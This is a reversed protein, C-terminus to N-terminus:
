KRTLIWCIGDATRHISDQYHNGKNLVFTTQIGADRYRCYILDTNKQVACLYKNRTRCERDGLSFYVCDPSVKMEHSSIYELLSPFWLSGSMTAFRSFADTNYMAYIAFLGALSYGTIARWAPAGTQQEVFPIIDRLMEQLYEDAGGTCPTDGPYIAPIAWPAMDKNWDVDSIAVLTHDPAGMNELAERVQAGMGEFTNIYIAPSGENRAAFIEVRKGDIRYEM